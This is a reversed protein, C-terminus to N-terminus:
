TGSPLGFVKAVDVNFQLGVVLASKENEVPIGAGGQGDPNIVYQLNPMLNLWSNLQASYNLELMVLNSAPFETGGELQRTAFISGLFSNNYHADAAMFGVYDNPRSSFPGQFVAGGEVSYNAVQKEGDPSYMATGFVYLGRPSNPKVQYIMQQAQAYLLTRGYQETAAANYYSASFNVRDFVVGVDYKNQQTAGPTTDVYGLEIPLEFGASNNMSWDFGHNRPPNIAPYSQYLGVRFYTNPTPTIGIRGGWVAAPNFQMSTDYGMLGTNGCSANSQFDCLFDYGIFNNDLDDRGVVIDLWKGIKQEYTLLSLQYTQGYGYIQQVSRSNNLAKAALNNGARQVFNIHFEGGPIDFLRYLDADAGVNLQGTYEAGSHLGGYPNAAAEGTYQSNFIIGRQAAAEGFEQIPSAALNVSSEASQAYAFGSMTAVISASIAITHITTGLIPLKNKM